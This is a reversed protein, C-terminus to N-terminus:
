RDPPLCASEALIIEEGETAIQFGAEAVAQRSPHYPDLLLNTHNLHTFIIRTRIGHLKQLSESVPPHPIGAIRTAPLETLTYFTGDIIAVDVQKLLAFVEDTYYDLDPMYLASRNQSQIIYALTNADENRHPV